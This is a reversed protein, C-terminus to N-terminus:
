AIDQDSLIWPGAVLQRMMQEKKDPEFGRTLAESPHKLREDQRSFISLLYGVVRNKDFYIFPLGLMDQCVEREGPPSERPKNGYEHMSLALYALMVDFVKVFKVSEKLLSKLVRGKFVVKTINPDQFITKVMTMDISSEIFSAIERGTDLSLKMLRNGFVEYTIAIRDVGELNIPENVRQNAFREEIDRYESISLKIRRLKRAFEKEEILILGEVPSLSNFNVDVMESPFTFIRIITGPKSKEIIKEGTKLLLPLFNGILIKKSDKKYILGEFVDDKTQVIVLNEMM